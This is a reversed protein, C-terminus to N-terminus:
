LFLRRAGARLLWRVQVKSGYGAMVRRLIGSSWRSATRFYVRSSAPATSARDCAKLTLGFMFRTRQAPWLEVLMCGVPPAPQQPAAGAAARGCAFHLAPTVLKLPAAIQLHQLIRDQSILVAKGLFRDHYTFTLPPDRAASLSSSATRPPAAAAPPAFSTSAAAFAFSSGSSAFPNSGFVSAGAFPNSALPAAASSSTSIAFPNSTASFPTSAFPNFPASAAFPNSGFVSAGAFPNSALPAAASSSTSIAFPNSTASFPTSAFPNFPTSAARAAVCLFSSATRPPAAAAPPAALAGGDEAAGSARSASCVQARELKACDKCVLYVRLLAADSAEVGAAGALDRLMGCWARKSYVSGDCKLGSRDRVLPHRLLVAETLAANRLAPLLRDATAPDLARASAASADASIAPALDSLSCQSFPKPLSDSM